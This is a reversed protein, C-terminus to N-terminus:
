RRPITLPQWSTEESVFPLTLPRDRDGARTQGLATALSVVRGIVIVAPDDASAPAPGTELTALTGVWVMQDPRSAGTIM